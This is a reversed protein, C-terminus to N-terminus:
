RRDPLVTLQKSQILVQEDSYQPFKANIIQDGRGSEGVGDNSSSIQKTGVVSGLVLASLVFAMWGFIAIKRHRASWMAARATLNRRQM